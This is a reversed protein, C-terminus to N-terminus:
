PVTHNYKISIFSTLFKFRVLIAQGHKKKAHYFSTYPEIRLQAKKSRGKVNRHLESKLRACCNLTTYM